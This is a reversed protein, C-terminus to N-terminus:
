KTGGKSFWQWLGKGRLDAPCQVRFYLSAKPQTITVETFLGTHRKRDQLAVLRQKLTGVVPPSSGLGIELSPCSISLHHQLDEPYQLM